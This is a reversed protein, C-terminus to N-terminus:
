RRRGRLLLASAMAALISGVWASGGGGGDRSAAASCGCGGQSPPAKGMPVRATGPSADAVAGGDAAAPRAADEPVEVEGADRDPAVGSEARDETADPGPSADANLPGTDPRGAADAIVGADPRTTTCTSRCVRQNCAWTVAIPCPSPLEDCDSSDRCLAFEAPSIVTGDPRKASFSITRPTVTFFDASCIREAYLTSTLQPMALQHTPAGGCSIVYRVGNREAVTFNHNHGGLVLDVGNQEWLSGWSPRTANGGAYFPAGDTPHYGGQSFPARHLVVIKWRVEPDRSAAALTDRLWITQSNLMGEVNYGETVGTYLITFHTNGYKFYYHDLYPAAPKPFDFASWFYAADEEHNGMAVNFPARALLPATLGFFINWRAVEPPTWTATADNRLSAVMDGPSLVLHPDFSLMHGVIQRVSNREDEGYYQTDGLFGFRFPDSPAPAARFTHDAGPTGDEITRYHYTQGAQLGTLQFHNRHATTHAARSGYATTTGYEVSVDGGSYSDYSISIAGLESSVSLYPACFAVEQEPTRVGISVGRADFRELADRWVFVLDSARSQGVQLQRDTIDGSQGAFALDKEIGPCATADCNGHSYKYRFQARSTTVEFTGQYHTADLRTLPDHVYQAASMRNSRLMVTAGPPTCYPVEVTFTVPDAWARGPILIPLLLGVVPAIALVIRKPSM